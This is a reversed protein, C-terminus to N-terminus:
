IRPKLPAWLDELGLRRVMGDLYPLDLERPNARFEEAAEPLAEQWRWTIPVPREDEIKESVGSIMIYAFGLRYGRETM